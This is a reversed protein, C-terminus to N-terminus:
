VHHIGHVFPSWFVWAYDCSDTGNGTFSPRRSLVVLATPPHEKYWDRRKQGALFNLRLLMAVNSSMKLARDCFEFALSFPPNTVITDGRKEAEFFDFGHAIDTGWSQIGYSNMWRVLRGDGCAPEWVPDPMLKIFPLVPVFAHEPTTYFDSDRRVSGRGTSSM